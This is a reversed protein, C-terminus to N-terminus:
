CMFIDEHQLKLFGIGGICQCVLRDLYLDLHHESFKLRTLWDILDGLIEHRELGKTPSEEQITTRLVLRFFNLPFEKKFYVSLNRKVIHM